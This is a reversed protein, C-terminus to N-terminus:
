RKQLGPLRYTDSMSELEFSLGVFRAGEGTGIAGSTPPADQVKVRISECKQARVHLSLQEIPLTLLSDIKYSEWRTTQPYAYSYDTGVSIVIDHNSSREGLFTTRHVRAFGQLGAPKIWASEASLVVWAGRDTYITASEKLMHGLSEYNYLVRKAVVASQYASSITDKGWQALRYDYMLRISGTPGTCSFLIYSGIPHVVASTITPYLALEKDVPQGMNQVELGRTLLYIGASSQFFAGQQTVVVSRPEICGLDSSVRQPQGFDNQAGTDNPGAGVIIYIRSSCFIVLKEDMSALAVIEESSDLPVTFDDCFSVAEGDVVLKSFWLTRKDDGISWVRGQHLTLGFSSPPNVNEIIGGTTYLVPNSAVLPDIGTLIFTDSVTKNNIKTSVQSHARYYPGALAGLLTRYIVIGVNDRETLQLTAVNIMAGGTTVAVTVPKSPASRHVQGRSDLYQYIAIYSYTGSALTGVDNVGTIQSPYSAFGVEKLGTSEYYTAIGGSFLTTNGVEAPSWTSSSFDADFRAGGTIGDNNVNVIGVTSYKNAALKAVGCAPWYFLGSEYPAAFRAASTAVLRDNNLASDYLCVLQASIGITGLTGGSGISGGNYIWAYVSPSAAESWVFPKSLLLSNYIPRFPATSLVGTLSITAFSVFPTALGDSVQYAIVASGGNIGSSYTIGQAMISPLGVSAYVTQVPVLVSLNLYDLGIVRLTQPSAIFTVWVMQGIAAAGLLGFSGGTCPCSALGVTTVVTMTSQAIRKVTLLGSTGAYALVFTGGLLNDSIEFASLAVKDTALVTITPDLVLSADITRARIEAGFSYVIVVKSSAICVRPHSGVGLNYSSYIPAGTELDELNLYMNSGSAYVTALVKNGAASDYSSVGSVTSSVGTRRVTCESVMSKYVCSGLASSYTSISQGNIALIEDEFAAIRARGGQTVSLSSSTADTTRVISSAVSVNGPRKSLAGVRSFRGNTIDLLKGAEVHRDDTSQDLGQAYPLDFLQGPM